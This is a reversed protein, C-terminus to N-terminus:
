FGFEGEVRGFPQVQGDSFLITTGIGLEISCNEARCLQYKLQPFTEWQGESQGIPFELELENNLSFVPGLEWAEVIGSGLDYDIEGHIIPQAEASVRLLLVSLAVTFLKLKM